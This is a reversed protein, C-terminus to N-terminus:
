MNIATKMFLKYMWGLMISLFQYFGFLFDLYLNYSNQNGTLAIFLSKM